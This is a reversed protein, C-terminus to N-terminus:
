EIKGLFMCVGPQSAVCSSRTKQNTIYPLASNFHRSDGIGFVRCVDDGSYPAAIYTEYQSLLTANTPNSQRLQNIPAYVNSPHFISDLYEYGYSLGDGTIILEGGPSVMASASEAIRYISEEGTEDPNPAVIQVRWASNKLIRQIDHDHVNAPFFFAASDQIPQKALLKAVYPYENSYSEGSLTNPYSAHPGFRPDLAIVISRPHIAAVTCPTLSTRCGVDIIIGYGGISASQVLDELAKKAYSRDKLYYYPIPIEVGSVAHRPSIGSHAPMYQDHWEPNEFDPLHLTVTQCHSRWRRWYFDLGDKIEEPIPLMHAVAVSQEKM